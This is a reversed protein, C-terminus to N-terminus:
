VARSRMPPTVVHTIRDDSIPDLKDYRRQADSGAHRETALNERSFNLWKGPSDGSPQQEHEL